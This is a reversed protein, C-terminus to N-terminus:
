GAENAVSERRYLLRVGAARIISGHLDDTNGDRVDSPFRDRPSSPAPPSRVAKLWRSSKTRPSLTALSKACNRSPRRYGSQCAPLVTRTRCSPARYSSAVYSLTGAEVAALEIGAREVQDDALRIGTHGEGAETGADGKPKRQEAGGQAEIDIARLPEAGTVLKVTQRVAHPIEPVLSPAVVGCAAALVAASLRGTVRRGYQRPARMCMRGHRVRSLCDPAPQLVHFFGISEATYVLCSKM